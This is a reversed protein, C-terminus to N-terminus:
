RPRPPPPLLHGARPPLGARPCRPPPPVAPHDQRAHAPLPGPRMLPRHLHFVCPHTTITGPIGKGGSLGARVLERADRKYVQSCAPCVHERRNGCAKLLVGDPETTTDYVPRAEGTALDVATIRGKLRIPYTCMGTREYDRLGATFQAWTLSATASPVAVAATTM